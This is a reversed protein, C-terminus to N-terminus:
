ISVISGNNSPAVTIADICEQGEQISPYSDSNGLAYYKGQSVCFKGTKINVYVKADGVSQTGGQSSIEGTLAVKGSGNSVKLDGTGFGGEIAIAIEHVSTKDNADMSAAQTSELLPDLTSNLSKSNSPPVIKESKGILISIYLSGPKSLSANNKDQNIIPLNKPDCSLPTGSKSDVLGSAENASGVYKAFANQNRLTICWKLSSGPQYSADVLTTGPSMRITSYTTQPGKAVATGAGTAGTMPSFVVVGEKTLSISGAKSGFSNYDSVISTIEQGVSTVDAQALALYSAQKQSYYFGKLTSSIDFRIESILGNKVWTSLTLNKPLSNTFQNWGYEDLHSDNAFKYGVGKPDLFVPAMEKMFGKTDLTLKLEDGNAGSSAKSITGNNELAKEVLPLVEKPLSSGKKSSISNKAKSLYDDYIKGGTTGPQYNYSLAEGNLFSKISDLTSPDSGLYTSFSDITSNLTDASWPANAQSGIKYADSHLYLVRDLITLGIIDLGNYRLSVVGSDKNPNKDRKTDIVLSYKDMMDSMKQADFSKHAIGDGVSTSNLSTILDNIGAASAHIKVTYSIDNNSNSLTNNYANILELVPSVKSVLANAGVAILVLLVSGIAIYKKSKGKSSKMLLTDPEGGPNIPEPSNSTPM